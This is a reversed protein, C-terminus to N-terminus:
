QIKLQKRWFRIFYFLIFIALISVILLGVFLGALYFGITLLFFIIFRITGYQTGFHNYSEYALFGTILVFGVAIFLEPTQWFLPNIQLDNPSFVNYLLTGIGLVIGAFLSWPKGEWDENKQRTHNLKRDILHAYKQIFFLIVVIGISVLYVTWGNQGIAETNSITDM